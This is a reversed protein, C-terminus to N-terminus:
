YGRYGYPRQYGENYAEADFLVIDADEDDDDDEDEEDDDDEDEELAIDNM